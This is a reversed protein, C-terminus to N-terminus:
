RREPVRPETQGLVLLPVAPAQRPREEHAARVDRISVKYRDGHKDRGIVYGGKGDRTRCEFVYNEGSRRSAFVDGTKMAKVRKLAERRDAHHKRVSERFEKAHQNAPEGAEDAMKVYKEPCNCQYPGVTEDMDKYGWGNHSRYYQMLTVMIWRQRKPADPATPDKPTTEFVGFLTGKFPGGIYQRALCRTSAKPNEWGRCLDDIVGKRRSEYVVTWGM